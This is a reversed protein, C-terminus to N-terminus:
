NLPAWHQEIASEDDILLKLPVVDYAITIRPGDWNWDGMAHPHSTESLVARNNKNVNVKRLDERNNIKYHTESPEANVCYYGHYVPAGHPSHEHWDLKGKGKDVYNVNFWGQLM